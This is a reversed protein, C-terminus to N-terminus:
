RLVIPLELIEQQDMLKGTERWKMQPTDAFTTNRLVVM